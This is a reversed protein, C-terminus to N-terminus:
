QKKNDKKRYRFILISGIISPIIGVVFLTIISMSFVKADGVGLLGFLFIMTAERTGLGNITIPLLGVLTTVPLIFLFYHFPVTIGISLGIFFSVLYVIIWNLLNVLFFFILNKGKPM